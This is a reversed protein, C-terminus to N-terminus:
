QRRVRLRSLGRRIRGWAQIAQLSEPRPLPLPGFLFRNYITSLENLDKIIIPTLMRGQNNQRALELHTCLAAVYEHPTRAPDPDIGWRRGSRYLRRYIIALAKDAPRMSLMWMELPLNVLLFGVAALVIVAVLLFAYFLNKWDFSSAVVKPGQPVFPIYNIIVGEGTPRYIAPLNTTPEFEVWGLGPFYIEVWAHANRARVTFWHNGYDYQGSSYGTVLRSPIGAARAMVVMTTAFYDCYGTKLDFLFYDAVDHGPPPAPVDLSYPFQRLYDEVAMARDYANSYPMTLDLALDRVRQPLEEPLALYRRAIYDPYDNGAQQLQAVTVHQLRSTVTYSSADTQADVMDDNARWEATTAQDSSLVDGTAFLIGGTEVVRKVHQTIQMYNDPLTTLSPYYPAEAEYPLLKSSGAAWARGNYSDFTQARWYFRIDEPPNIVYREIDPPLPVYGDVEVYMVIDQSLHQGAGISHLVSINVPGNGPQGNKVIVPTQKLGLSEAVANQEAPHFFRQIRNSLEEFSISPFFQGALMLGGALVIVVVGLAPEITVRDLHHATWRQDSRQYASAAQLLVMCGAARVLWTIVSYSNTYYINYALLALAPLIAILISRRRRVWWGAWAAVLWIAAGWLLPTVLPDVLRTGSNVGSIWSGIRGVLTKWASSLGQLNAPLPSFDPITCHLIPKLSPWITCRSFDRSTRGLSIFLEWVPGALRGVFLILYLIGAAGALLGAKWGKLRTRALFWTTLSGFFAVSALPGASLSGVMVRIGGTVSLLSLTLLIFIVLEM